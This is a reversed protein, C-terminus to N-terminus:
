PMTEIKQMIRRANDINEHAKEHDPNCVLAKEWEDIAAKLDENIFHKVGNRYHMQALKMLRENVTKKLTMSPAHGDDAQELLSRADLWQRREVMNKALNYRAEDALHRADINGPAQTLVATVLDLSAKFNNESYLRQAEEIDLAIQKQKLAEQLTDKGTFGDPVMALSQRAEDLRGEETQIIAQKLHITQILAQVAPDDANLQSSLALAAKFDGNSLRRRAEDLRSEPQKEPPKKAVPDRELKPLILLTQPVIQADSPLDNFWTVLFANDANGFINKAITEPRDGPLTHYVVLPFPSFIAKIQKRAPQFSPDLRLAALFHNRAKIPDGANMKEIGHQYHKKVAEAIKNELRLAERQAKSQENAISEILRWHDLAMALEGMDELEKARKSIDNAQVAKWWSGARWFESIGDGMGACGCLTIMILLTAAIPMWRRM